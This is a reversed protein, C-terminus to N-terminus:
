DDWRLARRVIREVDGAERPDVSELPMDPNFEDLLPRYAELPPGHREGARTVAVSLDGTESQHRLYRLWERAEELAYAFQGYLLLVTSTGPPTSQRRGLRFRSQGPVGYLAVLGRPSLWEGFDLGVTTTRKGGAARRGSQQWATSHVETLVAPTSSLTSVATTKGVGFPGVFAVEGVAQHGIVVSRDSM